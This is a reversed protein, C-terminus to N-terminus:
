RGKERLYSFEVAAIAIKHAIIENQYDDYANNYIDMYYEQCNEPLIAKIHDPLEDLKEYRM